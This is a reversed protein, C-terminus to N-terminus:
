LAGSLAITLISGSVQNTHLVTSALGSAEAQYVVVKCGGLLELGLVPEDSYAGQKLGDNPWSKKCPLSRRSCAVLTMLTAAASEATSFRFAGWHKNPCYKPELPQRSLPACFPSASATLLDLFCIFSRLFRALFTRPTFFAAPSPGKRRSMQELPWM